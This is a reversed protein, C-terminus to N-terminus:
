LNEAVSEAMDLRASASCYMLREFDEMVPGPELKSMEPGLDIASARPTRAAMMAIWSHPCKMAALNCPMWTVFNAM